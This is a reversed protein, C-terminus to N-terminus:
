DRRHLVFPAGGRPALPLGFSLGLLTRQDLPRLEDNVRYHPWRADPPYRILIVSRGDVRSPAIEATMPISEVLRGQRYLLNEGELTQGEGRPLRFRKGWWGHMGTLSMSLPAGVRLWGAFRAKHTGVLAALEPAPAARFARQLGRVSAELNPESAAIV